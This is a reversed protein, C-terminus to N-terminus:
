AARAVAAVLAANIRPAGIKVAENLAASVLNNVALPYCLSRTSVTRQGRVQETISTRLRNRIEDVADPEILADYALEARALKHRLYQEVHNDLPPLRVLECRQVVERVEPNHESLKWELETQGVLIIAMLKKFGDQLEYFRKLHKLTATALCHAEEILLLHKRGIQSSARLIDHMQAARDQQSARLRAGPSVARIVAGTIDISKLARGKNNDEEMGLVYPEIVTIPEGATHIWEILDHRLTSKGGGSESIVALMGGHRATQRMAARVYRIEDSLYVDAEGTMEDTFPDRTIRFHERAARSLTHKRLLMHLDEPQDQPLPPLAADADGAPPTASTPAGEVAARALAETIGRGILSRVIRRELAARSSRKPYVGFNVIQNVAAPSIGLERALDTQRCGIRMLMEKLDPVM